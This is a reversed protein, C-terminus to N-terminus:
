IRMIRMIRMRMIRMIKTKIIKTRMILTKMITNKMSTTSMAMNRMGGVLMVIDVMSWVRRGSGRGPRVLTETIVTIVTTEMILTDKTTMFYTPTTNVMTMVRTDQTDQTVQTVEEM